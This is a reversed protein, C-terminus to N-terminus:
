ATPSAPPARSPLGPGRPPAHARSDPTMSVGASQLAPPGLRPSASPAVALLPRGAATCTLKVQVTHKSADCPELTPDQHDSHPVDPAHAHAAFGHAHEAHAHDAGAHVHLVPPATWLVTLACV